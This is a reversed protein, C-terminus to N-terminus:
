SLSIEKKYKKKEVSNRIRYEKKTTTTKQRGQRDTKESNIIRKRSQLKKEFAIKQFIIIRFM